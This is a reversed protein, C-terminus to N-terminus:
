LSQQETGNNLVEAVISFSEEIYMKSALSLDPQAEIKIVELALLLLIAITARPATM